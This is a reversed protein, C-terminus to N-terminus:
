TRIERLVRFRECMTREKGYKVVMFDEARIRGGKDVSTEGGRVSPGGM